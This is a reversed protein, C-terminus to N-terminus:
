YEDLGRDLARAQNKRQGNIKRAEQDIISNVTIITQSKQVFPRLGFNPLSTVLFSQVQVLFLSRGTPCITFADALTGESM